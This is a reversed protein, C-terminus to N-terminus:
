PQEICRFIQPCVNMFSRHPDDRAESALSRRAPGARRDIWRYLVHQERRSREAEAGCQRGEIQLELFFGFSCEAQRGAHMGVGQQRDAIGYAPKPRNATDGKGIDDKLVSPPVRAAIQLSEFPPESM